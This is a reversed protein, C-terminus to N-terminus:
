KTTVEQVAIRQSTADGDGAGDGSPTDVAMEAELTAVKPLKPGTIAVVIGPLTWVMPVLRALLALALVMSPAVPAFFLIYLKEILGFGGPTIPVAGIIYILPIYVFYKYWPVAQGHASLNLALGIMAISGVWVVHAGFTIAVAKALAGLRRRYLKAADGAAAIHHAIPLRQYIKQVHLARRFRSSLLFTVALIVIGIVVCVTIASARLTAFDELGLLLVALLMAGALMTMETLGLIRDVFISVLVAAKRPTHKCVYYAKVLDGGVTGPVVMNFFNGLFTLRLAEWPRIHIDQIRLLFWWRVAVVLVSALFGALAVGLLATNLDKLSSAFGPHVFRQEWPQGETGEIPKIQSADLTHTTRWWLLGSTGTVSKPADASPHTGVFAFTQGDHTQIYDRWSAQSLVWGLLAVAVVIKAALLLVKRAPKTM